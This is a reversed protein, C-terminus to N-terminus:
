FSGAGGGVFTPWTGCGDTVTFPVTTARSRDPSQVVLQVTAPPSNPAYSFAGTQNQAGGTVSVSANEVPRPTGFDIRSITGAGAQVTVKLVGTAGKANTVQVNPRPASCAVDNDLNTVAM